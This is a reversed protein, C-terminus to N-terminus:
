LRDLRALALPVAWAHGTAPLLVELRRLVDGDYGHLSGLNAALVLALWPMCREEAALSAAALGAASQDRLWAEVDASLRGPGTVALLSLPVLLHKADFGGRGYLFGHAGAMAADAAAPMDRAKFRLGHALINLVVDNPWRTLAEDLRAVSAVPDTQHLRCAALPSRGGSAWYAAHLAAQDGPCPAVHGVLAAVQQRMSAAAGRAEAAWLLDRLVDALSGHTVMYDGPERSLVWGLCVGGEQRPRLDLLLGRDARAVPILWPPIDAAVAGLAAERTAFFDARGVSTGALLGLLRLDEDPVLPGLLDGLWTPLDNKDVNSM